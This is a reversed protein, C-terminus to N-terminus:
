RYRSKIAGWSANRAPTSGDTTFRAIGTSTVVHLHGHGDAALQRPSEWKGPEQALTALLTGAASYPMLM